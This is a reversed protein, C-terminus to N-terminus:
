DRAFLEVFARLLRNAEPTRAQAVRGLLEDMEEPAFYGEHRYIRIREALGQQDLEPHFQTAYQRTGVRFMQVPAAEGTALVVAHEPLSAVGEKHGVFAPFTGPLDAQRILPDAAGDATLTIPTPGVEEGYETSLVAGQHVGLTGVGYCAGFFPIDRDIVQDLLASLEAEAAVQEASKAHPPDSTTYPSGGVIIGSIDDLDIDSPFPGAELRVRRLQSPQLGSFRLIAEYEPDAAADARTAIVIFPKM